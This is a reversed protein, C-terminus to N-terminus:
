GIRIPDSSTGFGGSYTATSVLYFVPRVVYSINVLDNSVYGSSSVAFSGYSNVTGRSITWETSGLYMWNLSKITSGNVSGDYNYFTTIWASLDAAFGYDSVYMLGIKASYTTANDKSYSGVQPNTIENAYATAPVADRINATTNGGVKWTTTAIKVSWTSGINSIYNTNLNTKNLM